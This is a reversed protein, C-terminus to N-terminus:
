ELKEVQVSFCAILKDENALLLPLLWIGRLLPRLRRKSAYNLPVSGFGLSTLPSAEMSM